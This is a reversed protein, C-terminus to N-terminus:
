GDIQLYEGPSNLERYPYFRIRDTTSFTQPRGDIAFPPARLPVSVKTWEEGLGMLPDAVAQGGDAFFVQLACAWPTDTTRVNQKLYFEVRSFRTLDVAQRLLLGQWDGAHKAEVRLATEGVVADDVVSLLPEQGKAADGAIVEWGSRIAETVDQCATAPDEAQAWSLGGSVGVLLCLFVTGRLLLSQPRIRSRM